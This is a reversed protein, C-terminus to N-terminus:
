IFWSTTGHEKGNERYLGLTYVIIGIYVMFYNGHEKGNERYLGLINAIIGM